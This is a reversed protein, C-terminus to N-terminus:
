NSLSSRNMCPSSPILPTGPGKAQSLPREPCGRLLHNIHAGASFKLNIKGFFIDNRQKDKSKLSFIHFLFNWVVQFICLINDFFAPYLGDQPLCVHTQGGDKPNMENDCPGWKWNGPARNNQKVLVCRTRWMVSQGWPCNIGCNCHRLSM